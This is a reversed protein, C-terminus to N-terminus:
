GDVYSFVELRAHAVDKFGSIVADGTIVPAQM